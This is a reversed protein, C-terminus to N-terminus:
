VFGVGGCVGKADCQGFGGVVSDVAGGRGGATTRWEGGIHGSKGRSGFCISEVISANM